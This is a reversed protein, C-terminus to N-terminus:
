NMSPQWLAMSTVPCLVNSPSHQTERLCALLWSGYGTRIRKPVHTFETKSRGCHRGIGLGRETDRFDGLRRSCRAGRGGDFGRYVSSTSHKVLAINGHNFTINGNKIGEMRKASQEGLNKGNRKSGYSV